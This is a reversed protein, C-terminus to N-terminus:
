GIQFQHTPACRVFIKKLVAHYLQQKCPFRSNQVESRGLHIFRGFEDKETLPSNEKDLEKRYRKINKVMLDKRTLEM